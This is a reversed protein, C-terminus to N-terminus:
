GDPDTWPLAIVPRDLETVLRLARDGSLFQVLRSGGRARYAIASADIEDAAEFIEGVVDRAYATHDDADPFVSRVAAYAAEAEAESQEVPTKDPVGDGKEVVHLATVRDPRYPELAAATMKADYEDAVPLVVHALLARADGDAPSPM